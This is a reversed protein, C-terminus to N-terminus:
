TVNKHIYKYLWFYFLLLSFSSSSLLLIFAAVYIRCIIVLNFLMQYRSKFNESCRINFKPDIFRVGHLKTSQYRDVRRGKGRCLWLNKNAYVYAGMFVDAYFEM